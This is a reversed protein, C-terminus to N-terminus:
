KFGGFETNIYEKEINEYKNLDYVISDTDSYYFM